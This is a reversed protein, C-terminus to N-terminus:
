KRNKFGKIFSTQLKQLEKIQQLIYNQFDPTLQIFFNILEICKENRDIEKKNLKDKSIAINTLLLITNLLNSDAEKLKSEVQKIKDKESLEVFIEGMGTELWEQNVSFVECMHTIFVTKVEVRNNEINSIVDRSVGLKEGFKQQSLNINERIEKIRKNIKMNIM